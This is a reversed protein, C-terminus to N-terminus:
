GERQEHDFSVARTPKAARPATVEALLTQWVSALPREDDM